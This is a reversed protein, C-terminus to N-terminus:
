AECTVETPIFGHETRGIVVTPPHELIAGDVGTARYRDEEAHLLAVDRVDISFAIELAHAAASEPTPLIGGQSSDITARRDGHCDPIM